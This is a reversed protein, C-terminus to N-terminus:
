SENLADLQLWLACGRMLLGADGIDIVDVTHQRAHFFGPHRKLHMALRRLGVDIHKIPFRVEDVAYQRREDFSKWGQSHDEFVNGGCAGDIKDAGCAATHRGGDRRLMQQVIAVRNKRAAYSRVKIAQRDQLALSVPLCQKRGRGAAIRAIEQTRVARRVFAAGLLCGAAARTHEGRM